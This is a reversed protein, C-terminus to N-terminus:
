VEPPILIMRCRCNPHAPPCLLGNNFPLTVLVQQGNLPACFDCVTIGKWGSPGAMWEKKTKSLNLLGKEGAQMWALLTGQNQAAMVETRAINRARARILKARYKEANQEAMAVARQPKIGETIYRQVDREYANDVARQWRDHLGIVQRIQQAAQPVTVGNAIANSIIQRIRDLQEDQIQAIMKGARLRAWAVARPDSKDFSMGVSLGQPLSRIAEVASRFAQQSMVGAATPIQSALHSVVADSLLAQFAALPNSGTAIRNSVETVVAELGMMARRYPAAMADVDKLLQPDIPKLNKTVSKSPRSVFPV